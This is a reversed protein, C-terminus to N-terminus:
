PVTKKRRRPKFINSWAIAEGRKEAAQGGHAPDRGEARLQALRALMTQRQREIRELTAPDTQYCDKDCYIQDPKERLKTEPIPNRCNPNRCLRITTM